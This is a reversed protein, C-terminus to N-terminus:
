LGPRRGARGRRPARAAPRPDGGAHVGAAPARGPGAGGGDGGGRGARRHRD